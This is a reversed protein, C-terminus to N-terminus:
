IPINCSTFVFGFVTSSTTEIREECNEKVSKWEWITVQAQKSFTSSTTSEVSSSSSYASSPSSSVHHAPRTSTNSLDCSWEALCPPFIKWVKSSFSCESCAGRWCSEHRPENRAFSSECIFACFLEKMGIMASPLSVFAKRLPSLLCTKNKCPSSEM